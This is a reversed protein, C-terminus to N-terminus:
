ADKNATGTNIVSTVTYRGGSVKDGSNDTRNWNVSFIREENPMITLYRQQKLKLNNSSKSYRWIETPIKDFFMNLQQQVVFDVKSSKTFDLTKPLGTTNTVSMLLTIAGNNQSQQAIRVTYYLGDSSQNAEGGMLSPHSVISYRVLVIFAVFLCAFLLIVLKADAKRDHLRKGSHRVRATARETNEM